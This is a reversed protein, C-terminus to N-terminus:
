DAISLYLGVGLLVPASLYGGLVHQCGVQQRPRKACGDADLQSEGEPRRALGERLLKGQVLLSLFHLVNCRVDHGLFRLCGASAARIAAPAAVVRWPFKLLLFWPLSRNLSPLALRTQASGLTLLSASLCKVSKVSKLAVSWLPRGSKM